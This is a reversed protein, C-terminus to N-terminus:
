WIQATYAVKHYVNIPCKEITPLLMMKQDCKMSLDIDETISLGCPSREDMCVSLDDNVEQKLHKAIIFNQLFFLHERILRVEKLSKYKYM